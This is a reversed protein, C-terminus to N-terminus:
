GADEVREDADFLEDHGVDELSTQNKSVGGTGARGPRANPNSKTLNSNPNYKIINHDLRDMAYGYGILLSDYDIFLKNARDSVAEQLWFPFSNFLKAVAAATKPNFTQHRLWNKMVVWGVEYFAKGDPQFRDRFIRKVEEQDIGTDFAVERLSVEYVGAINTQHNTILYMFLHQETSPLDAFWPDKWIATNIYRNKAV